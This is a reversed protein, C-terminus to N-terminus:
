NKIMKNPKLICISIETFGDSYGATYIYHGYKEIVDNRDFTGLWMGKYNLLRITTIREPLEDIAQKLTKNLYIVGIM